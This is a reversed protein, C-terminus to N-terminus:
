FQAPTLSTHVFEPGPSLTMKPYNDDWKRQKWNVTRRTLALHLFDEVQEVSGIDLSITFDLKQHCM